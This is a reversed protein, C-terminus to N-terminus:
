DITALIWGSSAAFENAKKRYLQQIFECDEEVFCDKTISLALYDEGNSGVKELALQAHDTFERTIADVLYQLLPGIDRHKVLYDGIANRGSASVRVGAKDMETLCMAAAHEPATPATTTELETDVEVIEEFPMGIVGIGVGDTSLEREAVLSGNM